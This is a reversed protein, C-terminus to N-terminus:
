YAIEWFPIARNMRAGPAGPGFDFFRTKENNKSPKEVSKQPFIMGLRDGVIKSFISFIHKKEIKKENTKSLFRGFGLESDSEGYFVTYKRGTKRLFESIKIKKSFVM